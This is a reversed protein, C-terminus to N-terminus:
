KLVGKLQRGQLINEINQWIKGKRYPAYPNMLPNNSIDYQFKGGCKRCCYRIRTPTVNEVFRLATSNCDMWTKDPLEVQYPCTLRGQYAGPNIGKTFIGM